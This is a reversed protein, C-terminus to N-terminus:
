NNWDIKSALAFTTCESFSQRCLPSPHSWESVIHFQEDILEKKAKAYNGWLGFILVRNEKKTQESINFLLNNTFNRWYAFHDVSKNQSNVGITLACNLLLVGQRAWNELSTNKNLYISLKQEYIAKYIARLSPQLKGNQSNGCSFALGDAIESPYPDQALIVVQLKEYPCLEFAKLIDSENPFFKYGSNKVANIANAYLQKSNETIVIDWGKLNDM